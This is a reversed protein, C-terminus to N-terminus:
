PWSAYFKCRHIYVSGEVTLSITHLTRPTCCTFVHILQHDKMSQQIQSLKNSQIDMFTTEPLRTANHQQICFLPAAVGVRWYITPTIAQQSYRCLPTHLETTTHPQRSCTDRKSYLHNIYTCVIHSVSHHLPNTHYLQM